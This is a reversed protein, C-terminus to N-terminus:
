GSTWEQSVFQCVQALRGHRGTADVGSHAGATNEALRGCNTSMGTLLMDMMVNSQNM